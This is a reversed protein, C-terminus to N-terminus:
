TVTFHRSKSELNLPAGCSKEFREQLRWDTGAVDFAKKVLAQAEKSNRYQEDTPYADNGATTGGVARRAPANGQAPQQASVQVQLALAALAAAATMKKVM